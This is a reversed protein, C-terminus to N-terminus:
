RPLELKPEEANRRYFCAVQGIKQVLEAGTTAAIEGIWEARLERDARLKVKILEHADLATELEAQVTESM